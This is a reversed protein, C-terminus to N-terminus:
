RRTLESIARGDLENTLTTVGRQLSEFGRSVETLKAMIDVVNANSQELSGSVLRVREAPEPTAGPIAKFRAGSERSLDSEAAFEVVRLKGLVTAGSKVSGDADITVVGNSLTIEGSEGMVPEGQNTTLLGDSRRTFGGNRTYREGAETQVVFFGRGEIAVDLDRGTTAITGPRFDTKATTTAVDVASDLTAGFSARDLSQTGAREVKYGATGVNALDAALRDLEDLRARMGSLASYSGGPM